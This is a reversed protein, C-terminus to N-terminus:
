KHTIKYSISDRTNIPHLYYADQDHEYSRAEYINGDRDYLLENNHYIHPPEQKCSSLIFLCISLTIINKM